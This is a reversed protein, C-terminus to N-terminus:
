VKRGLLGLLRTQADADPATPVAPAFMGSAALDAAYPTTERLSFEALEGPMREDAGIARALDWGHVAADTTMQACYAEGTVDGFSLHVERQLAGAASFAALAGAAARDWAAVPDDGLLDGDFRDGVEAPTAGDTVIPPVWLQEVTLHNVLQRVSWETCPTAADWQDPRVAHVRQTFFDLAEAHRRLTENRSM